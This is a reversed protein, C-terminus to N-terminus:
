TYCCVEVPSSRGRDQSWTYDMNFSILRLVTINFLIEWRPVLGGYSDLTSGWNTEPKGDLGANSSNPWPLVSAAITSYPYGKGLENAFLISVNFVWTAAIVYQRPVRKAILFNTYLFFFVKFASFGHLVCLFILAFYFDFTVRRKMRAEAVEHPFTSNRKQEQATSLKQSIKKSPFIAESLKRLLPHVVVLIFMYPVNDRFTSYQSDSNDVM